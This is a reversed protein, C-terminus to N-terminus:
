CRSWCATKSCVGIDPRSEVRRGGGFTNARGAVPRPFKAPVVSFLLATHAKPLAPLTSVIQRWNLSTPGVASFSYRESGCVCTREMILHFFCLYTNSRIYLARVLYINSIENYALRNRGCYVNSSLPYLCVVSRMAVSQLYLVCMKYIFSRVIKCVEQSVCIM